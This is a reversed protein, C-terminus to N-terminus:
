IVTATDGTSPNRLSAALDDGAAKSSVPIVEQVSVGAKHVVAHPHAATPQYRAVAENNLKDIIAIDHM